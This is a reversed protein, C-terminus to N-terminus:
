QDDDSRDIRSLGGMTEIRVDGTSVAEGLLEIFNSVISWQIDNAMDHLHTWLHLHSDNECARELADKLRREHLRKRLTQPVIKFAPHPPQQGTPLHYATLSMVPSTYTEIIGNEEIPDSVPLPGLLHWYLRYLRSEPLKFAPSRIVEIGMDALVSQSVERHRPPVFSLTGSGFRDRYLSQVAELEAELTEDSIGDCLVHSFTHTCIEHDISATDIANILDPAYFLPDRDSNTGPDDDFWGDSYPGDHEGHCTELLLHGVTDFSIPVDHTDLLDLFRYLVDTERQRGDSLKAYRDDRDLDHYGWALEVEVSITVIGTM